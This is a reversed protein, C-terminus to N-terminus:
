QRVEFDDNDPATVPTRTLASVQARPPGQAMWVLMAEIDREPGCIVAEVSGDQCNHVWGNLGLLRAQAQTSARYHVGQVRGEVRVQLAVTDRAEDM